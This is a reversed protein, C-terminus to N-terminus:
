LIVPAFGVSAAYANVQNEFLVGDADGQPSAVYIEILNDVGHIQSHSSGDKTAVLHYVDYQASLSSSFAPTNPQMIRNYFGYNVGRLEEEMNRIYYEEGVGVAYSGVVAASITRAADTPNVDEFVVKFDTPTGKNVVGNNMTAGSIFGSIDLTADSDATNDCNAFSPQDAAILTKLADAISTATAGIAYEHTYSKIQFPEAGNTMDIIKITAEGAATATLASITYTEDRATSAAYSKGGWAIIDKGYIWPSVINVDIDTPGGQVIRIQDSDAITDGAVLSTPGDSSLKQVDVAGDALLGNSDYAVTTGDGILLHRAM